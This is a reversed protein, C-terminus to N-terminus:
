LPHYRLTFCLGRGPNSSQEDIENEVVIVPICDDRDRAILMSIGSGKEGGKEITWQKRYTKLAVYRIPMSGSYTPELQDDQRQEDMHLPGCTYMVFSNMRVEGATDWM